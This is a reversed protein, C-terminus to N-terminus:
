VFQRWIDCKCVLPLVLVFHTVWVHVADKLLADIELHELILYAQGVWFM